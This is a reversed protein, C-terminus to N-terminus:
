NPSAEYGSRHNFPGEQPFVSVTETVLDWWPMAFGLGCDECRVPHGLVDLGARVQKRCGPCEGSWKALELELTLLEIIRPKVGGVMDLPIDQYDIAQLMEVDMLGSPSNAVRQSQRAITEEFVNRVFRANGFHEDRRRHALSFLLSVYALCRSDMRYEGDTCFKAFIACLDAVSFDDFHIFRTFRSQLGPNTRLFNKMPGTYGAVIVTLRDRNDEMSKLLTNIAEPGFDNGSANGGLTYAEDVFLVGDLASGIVDATKLATQGVYGGVLGSRDTEVLKDSALLGFGYLIKSVIRAVTTKGTGPNGTFVFHLTQNSTRMGHTKRAAQVRLFDTLRRVENKVGELGILCNLEALAEALTAGPDAMSVVPSPEEDEQEDSSASQEDRINSIIRRYSAFREKFEKFSATTGETPGHVLGINFAIEELIQEYQGIFDWEEDLLDVCLCLLGGLYADGPADWGFEVKDHMFYGLLRITQDSPFSKFRKYRSLVSGMFNAAVQAVPYAAELDNELIEGDSSTIDVIVRLCDSGFASLVVRAIVEQGMEGAQVLNSALLRSGEIRALANVVKSFSEPEELETSIETALEIMPDYVLDYLHEGLRGPQNTRLEHFVSDSVEEVLRDVLSQELDADGMLSEVTFSVECRLHEGSVVIVAKRLLEPDGDSIKLTLSRTAPNSGVLEYEQVTGLDVVAEWAEDPGIPYEVTWMTAM